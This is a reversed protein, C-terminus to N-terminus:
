GNINLLQKIQIELSNVDGNNYIIDTAIAKLAQENKAQSSIKRLAAEKDINDREMIRELRIDNECEVLWVRDFHPAMNSEVLLPIEVFIDGEANDILSKLRKLIEPHSVANLTKRKEEDSFIVAALTKRDIKGDKIIGGGFITRLKEIHEADELLRDNIEDCSFVIKGTKRLFDLVRSKGSGILGTICVKMM